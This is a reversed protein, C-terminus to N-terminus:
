PLLEFFQASRVLVLAIVGAALDDIMVGLGRAWPSPHNKFVQDLFRIPFPKIIDFIRFFIIAALWTRLHTGATSAAIAMGIVEDIVISSHDPAQTIEDMVRCAWTGLAFLLIWFVIGMELPFFQFLYILPIAALSGLTGPAIPFLGVGLFTAVFLAFFAKIGRIKRWDVPATFKPRAKM